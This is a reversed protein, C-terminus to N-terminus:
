EEQDFSKKTSLNEIVTNDEEAQKDTKIEVITGSILNESTKDTSLEEIVTGVEEGQREPIIESEYRDSKNEDNIDTPLEEQANEVNPKTPLDDSNIDDTESKSITDSKAPMASEEIPAPEGIQIEPVKLDKLKPLSDIDKIGFYDMFKESTGYLLPRGPGEARGIISVLDKELLKQVTYDCNVGRIGEVDSKTVPQKYAIISLTELAAKSLRKQNNKKILTGVTNHFSGKTLFKFGSAIEVIEFSYDDSRYKEILSDIAKKIEVNKYSQELTEEICNKIQNLSITHESSFILSEIHLALREM